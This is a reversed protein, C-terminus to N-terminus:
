MYHGWSIYPLHLIAIHAIFLFHAQLTFVLCHAFGICVICIDQNEEIYLKLVIYLREWKLLCFTDRSSDRKRISPFGIKWAVEDKLQWLLKDMQWHLPSDCNIDFYYTWFLSKLGEKKSGLLSSLITYRIKNKRVERPLFFTAAFEIEEISSSTSKQVNKINAKSAVDINSHWMGNILNNVFYWFENRGRTEAPHLCLASAILLCTLLKNKMISAFRQM